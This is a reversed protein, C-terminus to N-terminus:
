GRTPGGAPNASDEKQALWAERLNQQQTVVDNCWCHFAVDFETAGQQAAERTIALLEDMDVPDRELATAWRRALVLPLYGSDGAYRQECLALWSAADRRYDELVAPWRPAKAM